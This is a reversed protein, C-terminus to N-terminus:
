SQCHSLEKCCESGNHQQETRYLTSAHSWFNFMNSPRLGQRHHLVAQSVGDFLQPHHKHSTLQINYAHREEPEPLFITLFHRLMRILTCPFDGTGDTRVSGLVGRVPQEGRQGKCM